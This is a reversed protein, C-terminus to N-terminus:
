ATWQVARCLFQSGIGMVLEWLQTYHAWAHRATDVTSAKEGMSRSKGRSCWLLSRGSWM